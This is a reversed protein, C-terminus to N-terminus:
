HRKGVYLKKGIFNIAGSVLYEIAVSHKSLFISFVWIISLYCFFFVILFFALGLLTTIYQQVLFAIACSVLGAVIAPIFCLILTLFRINLRRALILFFLTLMTCSLLVQLMAFESLANQYFILLVCVTLLLTIFNINFITKVMQLANMAAVIVSNISEILSLVIMIQILIIAGDWQEGLIKPIVLPSYFVVLIVVPLMTSFMLTMLVLLLKNTHETENKRENILTLMSNSIPEAIMTYPLLVIQKAMSYLGFDYSSFIKSILILDFKSRTYGTISKYLLWKSYSWQKRWNQLSLKPRDNAILYSLVLMTLAFTIDAIILAWYNQYVVALYLAVSFSITKSVLGCLALKGYHLQRSLLIISPSELGNLIPVFALALFVYILDDNEFFQSLLPSLGILLISVLLRTLLKLTWATYIDSRDLVTRSLIYQNTGAETIVEFFRLMLVGIAVVGYDNPSLYRALVFLSIIGLIRKVWASFLIFGTSKIFRNGISIDSNM